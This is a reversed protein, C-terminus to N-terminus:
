ARVGSRALRLANLTVLLSSATMGIAALAPTLWGGVALPLMVLNYGIAWALNQRGVQRMRRAGEILAPLTSLRNGLLLVDASRQALPAAQSLSVSADAAALVPGDNIGDGIMLVNAGERRWAQVRQLKCEPSQRSEFREIGLASAVAQVKAPADGSLLRVQLGLGRLATVSALAEERLPDEIHFRAIPRHERRLCLAASHLDEDRGLSYSSANIRGSVGVGPTERWDEIALGDDANFARALPHASRAELAAAIRLCTSEDCDALTEVRVIRPRGDTLTGTKDLVVTDIKALRDLADGRVVLLGARSLRSRMALAASPLALALACPCSVMLVAITTEVARGPAHMAWYAATLATILLVSVAFGQVFRDLWADSAGRQLAAQELLNVIHSLRTGRGSATVRLRLAGGIVESGALLTQGPAKPLAASEGTLLSEGVLAPSDLLEGDAPLSSGSPCHLVDGRRLERALVQDIGGQANERLVLSPVAQALRDLHARAAANARQQLFRACLLLFIFMVLSDFWVHAGGRLLEIVSAAYTLVIAASVLGDMGFRRQRLENRAGIFFPWACWAAIPTSLLFAMWRFFGRMALSMDGATDFYLAESIMMAQMSALGAVGIRLLWRRREDAQARQQEASGVLSCRYGMHQLDGILRSLPVQDPQWVIDVRQLLADANADVVGPHRRLASQILWACAACHMGHVALRIRKHAEGQATAFEELVDDRDWFATDTHEARAPEGVGSRLRHYEGLGADAIWRAAARCGTCCFERRSGDMDAHVDGAAAQGCHHCRRAAVDM